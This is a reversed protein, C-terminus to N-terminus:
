RFLRGLLLKWGGRVFYWHCMAKPKNAWFDRAAKDLKHDGYRQVIEFHAKLGEDDKNLAKPLKGQTELSRAYDAGALVLALKRNQNRRYHQGVACLINWQTKSRPSPKGGEMSLAKLGRHFGFFFAQWDSPNPMHNAIPADDIVLRGGECEPDPDVFVSDPIDAGKEVWDWRCSASFFNIGWIPMDTPWDQVRFIAMGYKQEENEIHSIANQLSDNSRFVMDADLKVFWNYHAAQEMVRAYLKRHAEVNPLNELVEHVASVGEQAAVSKKCAELENEGSYLTLVLVRKKSM